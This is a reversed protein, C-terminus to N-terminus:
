LAAGGKAIDIILLIALHGVWALIAVITIGMHQGTIMWACLCTLAFLALLGNIRVTLFKLMVLGLATALAEHSESERNIQITNNM